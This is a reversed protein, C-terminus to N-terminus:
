NGASFRNDVVLYSQRDLLNSSIETFTNRGCNTGGPISFFTNALDGAVSGDTAIGSQFVFRYEGSKNCGRMTNTIFVAMSINQGSLSQSCQSLSSLM